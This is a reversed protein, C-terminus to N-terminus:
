RPSPEYRALFSCNVTGSKSINRNFRAGRITSKRCNSKSPASSFMSCCNGNESYV